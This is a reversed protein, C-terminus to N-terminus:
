RVTAVLLVTVFSITNMTAHAIMGPGLKGTRRRFEGLLIAGPFLVFPATLGEDLIHACSFIVATLLVGVTPGWKRIAAGQILGRFFIEEVVPALVCVIIALVVWALVGHPTYGVLSAKAKAKHIHREGKAVAVIVAIVVEVFLAAVRALFGWGIAALGQGLNPPLLGFDKPWSGTGHRRSALYAAGLFGAWLGAESVVLVTIHHHLKALPVHAVSIYIVQMVLSLGLGTLGGALAILGGQIGEGKTPAPGADRGTDSLRIPPGPTQHDSVAGSWSSGGFYRWPAARWPDPYWGAPWSEAPHPPTPPAQM